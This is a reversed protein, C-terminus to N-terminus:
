RAKTATRPTPTSSAETCAKQITTLRSPLEDPLQLDVKAINAQGLGASTVTVDLSTGDAKSRTGLRLRRSSRAFPLSACGAVQFPSSVDTAPARPAPSPAGTITMPNCNTPNFEFGPRNVHVNIQKLQAPIGLKANGRGPRDHAPESTITVAATNPDINISSRVVVDGLNFPGAIAPTVISLGFPAGDYPGTIYVRGGSITYPDPGLGAVRPRQGIESEPGCSGQSAQPEPCPTGLVLMAAVGPPLHM